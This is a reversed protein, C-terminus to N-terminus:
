HNNQLILFSYLNANNLMFHILLTSWFIGIFTYGGIADVVVGSKTGGSARALTGDACDLIPFMIFFVFSIVAMEDLFFYAGIIALIVSLLTIQNSNFGLFNHLFFAFVVGIPRFFFRDFFTLASERKSFEDAKLLEKFTIKVM